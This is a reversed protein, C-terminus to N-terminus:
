LMLHTLMQKPYRTFLFFFFDSSLLSCISEFQVFFFDLNSFLYKEEGNFFFSFFLLRLLIQTDEKNTWRLGVRESASLFM